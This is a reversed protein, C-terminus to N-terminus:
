TDKNKNIFWNNVRELIRNKLNEGDENEDDNEATEIARLSRFNEKRFDGDDNNLSM